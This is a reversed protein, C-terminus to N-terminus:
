VPDVEEVADASYNLTNLLGSAAVALHRPLEIIGFESSFAFHSSPGNLTQNSLVSYVLPCVVSTAVVSFTYVYVTNAPININLAVNLQWMPTNYLTRVGPIAILNAATIPVYQTAVDGQTLNNIAHTPSSHIAMRLIQSDGCSTGPLPALGNDTSIIMKLNNFVVNSNNTNVIGGAAITRGGLGLITDFTGLMDAGNLSQLDPITNFLTYSNNGSLLKNQQATAQRPAFPLSMTTLLLIGLVIHSKALRFM